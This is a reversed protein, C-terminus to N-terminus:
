DRTLGGRRNGRSRVPPSYQELDFESMREITSKFLPIDETATKWLTDLDIQDYEHRLVNGIDEIQRWPVDPETEKLQKPLGRRVAESIKELNREIGDRIRYDESLATKEAGELYEEIRSISTQIDGIYALM